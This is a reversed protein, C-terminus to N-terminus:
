APSNPESARYRKALRTAKSEESAGVAKAAVLKAAGEPSFAKGAIILQRMEDLLPADAMAMSGSGPKRGRRKVTPLPMVQPSQAGAPCPLPAPALLQDELTWKEVESIIRERGEANLRDALEGNVPQERGSAGIALTRVKAALEDFLSLANSQAVPCNESGIPLARASGLMASVCREAAKCLEGVHGTGGSMGVKTFIAAVNVVETEFDRVADKRWIGFLKEITTTPQASVALDIEGYRKAFVRARYADWDNSKVWLPRGNIGLTPNHMSYYYGAALMKRDVTVIANPDVREESAATRIWFTIERNIIAARLYHVAVDKSNMAHVWDQNQPASTYAQTTWLPEDGQVVNRAAFAECLEHYCENLRVADAVAIGTDIPDVM